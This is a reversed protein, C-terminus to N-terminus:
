SVPEVYGPYRKKIQSRKVLAFHYRGSDQKTTCAEPQAPALVPVVVCVCVCLGQEYM